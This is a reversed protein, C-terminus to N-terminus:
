RKEIIKLWNLGNQGSKEPHFQVGIDGRANSIAAVVKSTGTTYTAFLNEKKVIM